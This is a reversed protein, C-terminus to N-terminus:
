RLRLSAQVVNASANGAGSQAGIQILGNNNNVSNTLNVDTQFCNCSVGESYSKWKSDASEKHLALSAELSAQKYWSAKVKEIETKRASVDLDLKPPHKRVDLELHASKSLYRSAAFKGSASQSAKLSADLDLSRTHTTLSQKTKTVIGNTYTNNSGSQIVLGASQLGAGTGDIQAINAGLNTSGAQINVQLVGRNGNGSNDTYASMTGLNETSLGTPNQFVLALDQSPEQNNQHGNNHHGHGNSAAAMALSSLSLTAVAIAISLTKETKM